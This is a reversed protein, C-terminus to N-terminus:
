HAATPYWSADNNIDDANSAELAGSMSVVTVGPDTKARMRAGRCDFFATGGHQSAHDIDTPIATM